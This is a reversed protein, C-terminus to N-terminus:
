IKEYIYDILKADTSTTALTKINQLMHLVEVNKPQDVLVGEIEEDREVHDVETKNDLLDSAVDPICRARATEHWDVQAINVAQEHTEVDDDFSLYEEAIVKTTLLQFLDSFEADDQAEETVGEIQPFVFKQFCNRITNENVEDWSAKLWRIGDM